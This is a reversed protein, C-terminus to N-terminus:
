KKGKRESKIRSIIKADKKRDEAMTKPKKKAAHAEDMKTFKKREAPTLKAAKEMAADKKKDKAETYKGKAYSKCSLCNGCSCKKAM